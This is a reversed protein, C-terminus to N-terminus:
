SIGAVSFALLVALKSALYLSGHLYLANQNRQTTDDLYKIMWYNCIRKSGYCIVFLPKCGPFFGCVSICHNWSIATDPALATVLVYEEWSSLGVLIRCKAALRSGEITLKTSISREKWM